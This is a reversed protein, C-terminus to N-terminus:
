ADAVGEQKLRKQLIKWAIARRRMYFNQDSPDLAESAKTFCIGVEKALEELSLAQYDLAYVLSWLPEKSVVIGVWLGLATVFYAPKETYIWLVLCVLMGLLAGVETLVLLYVVGTALCKKVKVM